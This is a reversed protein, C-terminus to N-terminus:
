GGEAKRFAGTVVFAVPWGEITQPLAARVTADDRELYIVLQWNQRADQELGVGSVGSQALLSRAHRRKLARLEAETNVALKTM